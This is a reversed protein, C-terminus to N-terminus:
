GSPDIGPALGPRGCGTAARRARPLAALGCRLRGLLCQAGRSDRTFAYLARGRGDFLIQGYDSGRVTLTASASDVGAATSPAGAIVALATFATMLSLPIRM